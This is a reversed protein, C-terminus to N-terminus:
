RGRERVQGAEGRIAIKGVLDPWLRMLRRGAPARYSNDLNIPTKGRLAEWVKPMGVPRGSEAFLRLVCDAILAEEDPYKAIEKDWLAPWDHAVRSRQLAIRDRAAQREPTPDPQPM